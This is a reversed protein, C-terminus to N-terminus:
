VVLPSGLALRERRLKSTKDGHVKVHAPDCVHPNPSGPPIPDPDVFQEEEAWLGASTQAVSWGPDRGSIVDRPSLAMTHMISHLYASFSDGDADDKFASSSPRRGGTVKPDSVVWMPPIRRYTWDDSNDDTM